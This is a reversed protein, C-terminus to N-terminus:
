LHLNFLQWKKGVSIGLGRHLPGVLLHVIVGCQADLVKRNEDPLDFGVILYPKKRSSLDCLVNRRRSSWFYLNNLLTWTSLQKNCSIYTLFMNVHTIVNMYHPKHQVMARPLTTNKNGKPRCHFFDSLVAKVRVCLISHIWVHWM